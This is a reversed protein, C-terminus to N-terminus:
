RKLASNSKYCTLKRLINLTAQAAVSTLDNAIKDYSVDFNHSFISNLISLKIQSIKLQYLNRYVHLKM